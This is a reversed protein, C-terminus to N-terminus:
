PCEICEDFCQLGALINNLMTIAAAVVTVSPHASGWAGGAVPTSGARM